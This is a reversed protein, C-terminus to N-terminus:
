GASVDPLRRAALVGLAGLGALFVLAWHVGLISLASRLAGAVLLIIGMASNSVAVYKTRQDGEAMDVLYTKRGVRVGTHILTLAFYSGVFLAVGWGSAGDFGPLLTAVVIAILLASAIGAGAAMLNRSSRDALRGAVPGGLLASLGSAIIFGGLGSLEGAGSTMALSVLFPPSLASVLLLSRVIVFHRFPKDERLLTVSAVLWGPSRTTGPETTAGQGHSAAAQTADDDDAEKDPKDYPERIGAYVLATLVWLVAGAGLLWAIQGAGLEGGGLIRLAAGLTIAVIGAATTSLGNIQGRQGKPLTRGQVDKSSMSTLSRGLSFVALAALIAVGAGLGSGIAAVLAMAAVAVAQVLAGTVFVLTRRRVRLVLPTLMAQPLMSGSERIPVLLGTLAPPVGIAQFLWPLVTSANVTQDGSSQLAHAGVLRIGNRPVDARVQDDLDAEAEPDRTVVASYLRDSRSM